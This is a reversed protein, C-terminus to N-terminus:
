PHLPLDRLTKKVRELAMLVAGYAPSKLPTQIQTEPFKSKVKKKLTRSLYNSYQLMGGLFAIRIKKGGRHEESGRLKKVLVKVHDLLELSQSDLIKRAVRDGREAAQLVLPALASVDFQDQYVKSVIKVPDSLKFTKGALATLLTPGGRGDLHKSVARLAERGIVFGSGEDGILRGWGGVRYINGEADKAFGVSGTGAVIVIGPKGGLAGEVAVRGDSEVVLNRLRIHNTRALSRIAERTRVQDPKRGAGALGVVTAKIQDPTCRAESCCKKVMKLIERATGQLGAIQVNSIGGSAKTIAKGKLDALIARTRTGGGDIGLVFQRLSTM